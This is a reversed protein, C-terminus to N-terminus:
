IAAADGFTPGGGSALLKYAMFGNAIMSIISFILSAVAIGDVSRGVTSGVDGLFSITVCMQPVDELFVVALMGYGLSTTAEAAGAVGFWHEARGRMTKLDVILMISGIISFILCAVRLPTGKHQGALSISYM